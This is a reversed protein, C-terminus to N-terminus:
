LRDSIDKDEYTGFEKRDALFVYKKMSISDNTQEYASRAHEEMKRIVDQNGAAAFLVMEKAPVMIVLDDKLKDVCVQWIHKFCVASAEHHGDALIAFAGYWTNAIVFEVDRILNECAKHYLEEIDCEPPLMHDKLVEFVDEGRKIVFIIKLDGAFAIVPADKESFRKGNLAKSDTLETKVWPYIQDIITEYRYKDEEYKKM